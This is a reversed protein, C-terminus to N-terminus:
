FGSDIYECCPLAQLAMISSFFDVVQDDLYSQGTFLDTDTFPNIVQWLRDEEEEEM